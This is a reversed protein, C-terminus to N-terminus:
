APLEIIDPDKAQIGSFLFDALGFGGMPEDWEENVVIVIGHLNTVIPWIILPTLMPILLLAGFGMTCFTLPMMFAVILSAGVTIAIFNAVAHKAHEVAYPDDRLVLPVLGIPLGTFMGAYSLVAWMKGNDTIERM